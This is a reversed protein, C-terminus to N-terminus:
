SYYSYGKLSERKSDHLSDTRHATTKLQINMEQSVVNHTTTYTLHCLWTKTHSTSIIHTQNVNRAKTDATSSYNSFTGHHQCLDNTLSLWFTHVFKKSLGKTLKIYHVSRYKFPWLICANFKHAFCQFPHTMQQESGINNKFTILDIKM